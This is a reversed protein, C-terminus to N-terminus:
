NLSCLFSCEKKEIKLYLINYSRFYFLDCNRLIILFYFKLLRLLEFRSFLHEVTKFSIISIAVMAIFAVVRHMVLHSLKIVWDEVRVYVAIIRTVVENIVVYKVTM